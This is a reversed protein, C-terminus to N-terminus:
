HNTIFVKKNTKNSTKKHKKVLRLFSLSPNGMAQIKKEFYFFISTYLISHTEPKKTCFFNPGFQTKVKAM